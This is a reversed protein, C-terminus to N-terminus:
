FQAGALGRAGLRRPVLTIPSCRVAGKWNTQPRVTFTSMTAVKNNLKEQWWPGRSSPVWCVERVRSQVVHVFFEKTVLINAERKDIKMCTTHWLKRNICEFFRNEHIGVALCAQNYAHNPTLSSRHSLGKGVEATCLGRIVAMTAGLMSLDCALLCGGRTIHVGSYNDHCPFAQAQLSTGRNPVTFEVSSMTFTAVGDSRRWDNSFTFDIMM